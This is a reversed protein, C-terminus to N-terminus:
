SKQAINALKWSYYLLFEDLQNINEAMIYRVLPKVYFLKRRRKPALVRETNAAVPPRAEYKETAISDMKKKCIM